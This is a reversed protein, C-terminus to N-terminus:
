YRMVAVRSGPVGHRTVTLVMVPTGGGPAAIATVAYMSDLLKPTAGQAGTAEVVRM